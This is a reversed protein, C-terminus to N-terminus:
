IEQCVTLMCAVCKLLTVDGIILECGSYLTWSRENKDYSFIFEECYPDFIKNSGTYKVHCSDNEVNIKVKNVLKLIKDMKNM